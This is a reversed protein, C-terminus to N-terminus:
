QSPLLCWHKPLEQPFWRSTMGPFLSDEKIGCFEQSAIARHAACLRPCRPSPILAEQYILPWTSQLASCPVSLTGGAPPRVPQGAGQQGSAAMVRLPDACVRRGGGARCGTGQTKRPMRGVTAWLVKKGCEAGQPRRAKERPRQHTAPTRECPLRWKELTPPSCGRSLAQDWTGQLALQGSHLPEAPHGLISAASLPSGTLRQGGKQHPLISLHSCV